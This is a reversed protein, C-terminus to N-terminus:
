VDNGNGIGIEASKLLGDPEPRGAGRQKHEEEPARDTIEIRISCFFEEEVDPLKQKRTVGEVQARIELFFGAAHNKSVRIRGTDRGCEIEVQERSNITFEARIKIQRSELMLRPVVFALMPDFHM